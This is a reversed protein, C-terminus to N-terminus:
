GHMATCRAMPTGSSASSTMPRAWRTPIAAQDIVTVAHGRRSLAWASCLGMIGAGVIVISQKTGPAAVADNV